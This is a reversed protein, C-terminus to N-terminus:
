KRRGGRRRPAPGINKELPAMNFHRRTKVFDDVSNPIGMANVFHTQFEPELATEIKEIELVLQEIKKRESFDLLCILAGQGAANGISKLKEHDTDPVLGLLLAHAPDIYSGFAGALRIDVIEKLGAKELLLKIGAYLASKALQIARVDNQTIALRPNKDQVIYSFTRGSPVLFSEEASNRPGRIIGDTSIIGALLMEGVVEVIASGCLGTVGNVIGAQEFGEENSWIDSGIVKYRAQLTEHDIRIREIAGPAARQGSSIEAGELAPGTPSSAAYIKNGDWLIIEANTGVDVLLVPHNEGKPNQSLIVAAADAGVHGAIIPLFYIRGGNGLKIGVEKARARVAGSLAPNFPAQGLPTPDLGLFLHQMVPNAVFVAELVHSINQGSKELLEDILGNVAQRIAGTLTERGGENMMVYSVRSMLDEGYRIQPNARGASALIEGSMLDVLHAAVTTSGIDLALGLLKECYGPYLAILEPREESLDIALTIKWDAGPLTSQIRALLDFPIKLNKIFFDRALADALRDADGMPTHLDPKELEVYCLRIASNRVMGSTSGDKRITQGAIISAAPVDIVLDGEIRAACSLRRDEPLTRIEDYRNELKARASLHKKSSTIGFKAFEGEAISIQCRGCIGRGGCVSEINVGLERAADLITTGISFSGSKGSPQFIIRAKGATKEM